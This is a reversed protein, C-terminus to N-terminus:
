LLGAGAALEEMENTITQRRAAQVDQTLEEILDDANKTAQEMLQYRESHEAIASSLFVGYLDLALLQRLLELFLVKASTDLISDPWPPERFDMEPLVPPLQSVRVTKYRGARLGQNYIIEVQDVTGQNYGELWHNNLEGALKSPAVGPMPHQMFVWRNQFVHRCARGLANGFVHVEMKEAHQNLETLYNASHQALTRNFNGCLGRESGIVVLIRTPHQAESQSMSIKTSLHPVVQLMLQELRTRYEESTRSFRLATQWSGLSITKLAELLPKVISINQLRAQVREITEAM